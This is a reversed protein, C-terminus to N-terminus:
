GVPQRLEAFDDAKNVGVGGQAICAV